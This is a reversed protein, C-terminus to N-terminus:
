KLVMLFHGIYQLPRTMDSAGLVQGVAVALKAFANVGSLDDQGDGQADGHAIGAL